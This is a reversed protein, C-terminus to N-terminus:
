MGPLYLPAQEDDFPYPNTKNLTLVTTIVAIRGYFNHVKITNRTEATGGYRAFNLNWGQEPRCVQLLVDRGPTYCFHVKERFDESLNRCFLLKSM